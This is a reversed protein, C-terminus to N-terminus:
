RSATSRAARRGGAAHLPQRRRPRVVGRRGRAAGVPAFPRFSERYKVKLNLLKQMTPRARRRGPHLPRGARAPRVGHAGPALRAGQRRGARQACRTSWTADDSRDRVRRRCRAAAGRHGGAYLVPGLYSGQMRMAGCREAAAAPAQVPSAAALAAGLAGGADGAAPQIWIRDFSGRAAAQRQGRLQAGRRRRPVSEERGDGARDVRALRLVVEETVAQVSAALDMERQTSRRRPSARRAASCRM